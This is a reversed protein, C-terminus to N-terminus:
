YMKINCLTIDGVKNMKRLKSHSNWTKQPKMCVNPYNKRFGLSKSILPRVLLLNFLMVVEWILFGIYKFRFVFIRFYYFTKLRKSQSRFIYFINVRYNPGICTKNM